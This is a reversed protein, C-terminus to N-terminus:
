GGQPRQSARKRFPPKCPPATGTQTPRDAATGVKEFGDHRRLETARRPTPLVVFRRSVHSVVPM